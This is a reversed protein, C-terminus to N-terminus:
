KSEDVRNIVSNSDSIAELLTKQIPIINHKNKRLENM